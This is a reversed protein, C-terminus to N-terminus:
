KVVLFQTNSHSHLPYKFDKRSTETPDNLQGAAKWWHAQVQLQIVDVHKWYLVIATQLSSVNIATVSAERGSFRGGM